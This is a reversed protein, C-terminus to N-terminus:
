LFGACLLSSGSSGFILLDKKKLLGSIFSRMSFFFLSWAEVAAEKPLSRLGWIGCLTALFVKFHLGLNSM